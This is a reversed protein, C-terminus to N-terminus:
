GALSEPRSARGDAPSPVAELRISVEGQPRLTVQARPAVVCDSGPVLRYRQALMAIALQAEMLAFENGICQRPGGSFPMYAFRPRDWSQEPSFREPDFREPDHWFQPHRHTLYTCIQIISGASIRYGGITDEGISQRPYGWIPPYLRLVEEVVMRTYRLRPLDSIEPTRGDLVDEVERHLRAAIAPHRALLYCAWALAVATTEHGGVVFTLVEDRLQRDSMSEGTEADRAALLMSLLDGRDEGTRRRTAIIGYVVEELVSLARRYRRNQPTPVALPVYLWSFTLRTVHDLGVKLARGVVAADGSLDLSFLAKGVVDLTLRSVEPMVDFARGSAAFSQWRDLMAGITDTMITAFSAIRERHFAPQALRRQRRWFGGESSFLGEGILVKSRQVLPGKVYNQNHDQLIHRVHDPHTVMYVKWLATRFCVLDGFERVTRACFGLPDRSLDAGM